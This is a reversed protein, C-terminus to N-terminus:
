VDRYRLQNDVNVGEKIASSLARGYCDLVSILPKNYPVFAIVFTEWENVDKLETMLDVPFIYPDM